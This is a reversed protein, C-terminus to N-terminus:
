RSSTDKFEPFDRAHLSESLNATLKGALRAWVGVDLGWTWNSVQVPWSRNANAESPSACAAGGGCRPRAPVCGVGLRSPQSETLRNDPGDRQRLEM